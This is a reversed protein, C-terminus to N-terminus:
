RQLDFAEGVAVRAAAPVDEVRGDRIAATAADRRKPGVGPLADAMWTEVAGAPVRPPVPTPQRPAVTAWVGLGILLALATLAEGREGAM